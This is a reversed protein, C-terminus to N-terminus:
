LMTKVTIPCLSLSLKFDTKVGLDRGPPLFKDEHM